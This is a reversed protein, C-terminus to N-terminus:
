PKGDLAEGEPHLADFCSLQAHLSHLTQAINLVVADSLQRQGEPTSLSSAYPHQITYPQESPNPSSDLPALEGANLMSSEMRGWTSLLSSGAM